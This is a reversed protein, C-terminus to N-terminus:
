GKNIMDAITNMPNIRRGYSDFNDFTFEFKFSITVRPAAIQNPEVFHELYGPWLAIKKPTSESYWFDNYAYPNPNKFVTRANSDTLYLTGNYVAEYHNHPFMNGNNFYVNFWMHRVYFLDKLKHQVDKSINYSEFFFQNMSLCLKDSLVALEPTASAISPTGHTFFINGTYNDPVRSLAFQKIKECDADSIVNYQEYVGVPWLQKTLM